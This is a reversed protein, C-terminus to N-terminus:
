WGDVGVVVRLRAKSEQATGVTPKQGTAAAIGAQAEDAAGGAMAFRPTEHIQRRPYNAPVLRIV